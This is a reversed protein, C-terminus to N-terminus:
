ENFGERKLLIKAIVMIQESYKLCSRLNAESLQWNYKEAMKLSELVHCLCVENINM